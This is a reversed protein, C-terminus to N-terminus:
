ISQWQRVTYPLLFRVRQELEQLKQLDVVSDSYAVAHAEADPTEPADDAPEAAAPTPEPVEVERPQAPAAIQDVDAAADQIAPEASQPKEPSPPTLKQRKAQPEITRANRRNLATIISATAFAGIAVSGASFLGVTAWTPEHPLM